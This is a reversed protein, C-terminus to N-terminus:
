MMAPPSPTKALTALGERFAHESNPTQPPAILNPHGSRYCVSSNNKWGDHSPCLPIAGRLYEPNFGQLGTSINIETGNQVHLACLPDGCCTQIFVVSSDFIAMCRRRVATSCLVAHLVVTTCLYLHVIKRVSGPNITKQM